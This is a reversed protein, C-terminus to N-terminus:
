ADLKALAKVYAETYTPFHPITDRLVTLPIQAKIALEAYHIWESALPAVAWAGILVKRRRDAVIALEGRPETEYTWPRAIQEALRIHAAVEPDTFVVRPVATDDASRSVSEPEVGVRVDIGEGPSRRRRPAPRAGRRPASRPPRLLTKSPICAWYACEGGVLEQEVLAVKGGREGLRSVVVEGGPGAGAVIADFTTSDGDRAM